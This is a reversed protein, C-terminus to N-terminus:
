FPSFTSLLEMFIIGNIEVHNTLVFIYVTAMNLLQCLYLKDETIEVEVFFTM